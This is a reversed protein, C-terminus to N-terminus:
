PDRINLGRRREDESGDTPRRARQAPTPRGWEGDWPAEVAVPGRCACRPINLKQMERRREIPHYRKHYTNRTFHDYFDVGSGHLNGHFNRPYGHIGQRPTPRSTTASM